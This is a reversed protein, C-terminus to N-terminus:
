LNNLCLDIQQKFRTNSFIYLFIDQFEELCLAKIRLSIM